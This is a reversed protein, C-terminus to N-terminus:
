CHSSIGTQRRCVLNGGRLRRDVLGGVSEEAPIDQRFIQRMRELLQVIAFEHRKKPRRELFCFPAVLQSRAQHCTYEFSAIRCCPSRRLPIMTILGTLTTAHSKGQRATLHIGNARGELSTYPGGPHRPFEPNRPGIHALHQGGVCALSSPVTSTAVCGTPAARAM